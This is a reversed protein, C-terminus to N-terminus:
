KSTLDIIALRVAVLSLVIIVAWAVAAFKQMDIKKHFLKEVVIVLLHGGDLPPLPLLNFVALLLFFEAIVFIFIDWGQRAAQVAVQGAGIISRPSEATRPAKGILLRLTSLSFLSVFGRFIAATVVGLTKFAQGIAAIPNTRVLKTSQLIGIIGRNGIKVLEVGATATKGNREYVITVQQNPRKSLQATLQNWDKTPNGDVSKLIDGKKLGAVYAPGPVTNNTSLTLTKEVAGIQNSGTVEEHGVPWFLLYFLLLAIVVHVASGAVIVVARKWLPAEYYTRPLDEPKIEEEPNMGAIRVSGGAFIWKLSYRTEGRNWGVIEPGFGISFQDVKIGVRKAAFYHGMEHTLIMFAIVVIAIVVIKVDNL